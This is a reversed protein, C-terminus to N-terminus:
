GEAGGVPGGALFRRTKAGCGPTLCIRTQMQEGDWGTVTKAEIPEGWPGWNHHGISCTGRKFYAATAITALIAPIFLIIIIQIPNM